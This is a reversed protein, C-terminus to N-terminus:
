LLPLFLEAEESIENIALGIGVATEIILLLVLAYGIAMHLKRIRRRDKVFLSLLVQAVAIIIIVLGLWGKFVPEFPETHQWFLYEGHLWRAYSGYVFTVGILLVLSIGFKKHLSFNLGQIRKVRGRLTAGSVAVLVAFILSITGTIAHSIWFIGTTYILVFSTIALLVVV